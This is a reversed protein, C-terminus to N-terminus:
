PESEFIEKRKLEARRRRHVHPRALVGGLHARVDRFSEYVTCSINESQCFTQLAGKAYVLDAYQVACQDSFGDGIYVLVDQEGSHTLMFNRKCYACRDCEADGAPFRIGLKARGPRSGPLLELTNSVFPVRALGHRELIGRIYYDLGDSVVFFEIGRAQCFDVFEAFGPDVNQAALFAEAASLDLEGIAALERRFCENAPLVGARLDRVLEDCVLGGFERFFANGVDGGSITGDFDVFIKLAM